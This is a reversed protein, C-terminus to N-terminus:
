VMVKILDHETLQESREYEGTVKGDKLILIRDSMGILEQLEESILIFSYGEMKMNYIMQYMAQKVGIDIGRTPCDLIFIKTDCGLWKGFSVKQKNGGSLHMVPQDMSSCKISMEDVIKSALKKESNGTVVFGAKSIKSLAPLVINNKISAGLMVSEEDRNKSVYGLGHKVATRTNNIVTGDALLVEGRAAADIGFIMKGLEHIGGSAIGGIGLIEGKHLDFNLNELRWKGTANKVSLVVEESIDKGYDNRYYDGQMERGVLMSQIKGVDYEEKTLSGIIEGDRLVTVINCIDLIEDMDHSILIVSKNEEHMKEICRYLLERGNQDLATTTEDIVLIDPSTRMAKAIEILKRTEPELSGTPANPNIDTIGVAELAKGAEENLRKKNIKGVKKFGSLDGLFINEAVSIFRATGQEQVIMAIGHELADNANEPLYPKGFCTMEGSDAYQMGAIISTLTSKGSGNEGILGHVEGRHLTFDVNKLAKTPGFSKSMNKVTLVAESM